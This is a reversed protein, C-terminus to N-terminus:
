RPPIKISRLANLGSQADQYAKTKGAVYTQMNAQDAQDKALERNANATAQQRTRADFARMQATQTVLQNMQTNLLQLGDKNGQIQPIQAGLQQMEAYQRDIDDLTQAEDQALFANGQGRDQNMQSQMNVFDNWNLGSMSYQRLKGNMMAQANTVSGYLNSATSAYARLQNIQQLTENGRLSSFSGGLNSLNQMQMNISTMQNAIQTARQAEASLSQAASITNKLFNPADFVAWQAHASVSLLLTACVVLAKRFM